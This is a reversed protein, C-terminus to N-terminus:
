DKGDKEAALAIVEATVPGLGYESNLWKIRSPRDRPGERKLIGVWEDVPRGTRKSLNAAVAALVDKPSKPM